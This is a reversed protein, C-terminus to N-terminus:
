GMERAFEELQREVHHGPLRHGSYPYIEVHKPADIANYAAFVTSPPCITDMLGVSVTTRARIRPALVANDVYSLTRLVTPIHEHHQAVQFYLPVPSGRDLSVALGVIPESM